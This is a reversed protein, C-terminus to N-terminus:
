CVFSCMQTYTHKGHMNIHIYSFSFGLFGGTDCCVCIYLYVDVCVCMCVCVCVCARLVVCSCGSCLSCVCFLACRHMHTNEMCTFIYKLSPSVWSGVLIVAFVSVCIYM